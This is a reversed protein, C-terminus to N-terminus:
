GWNMGGTAAYPDDQPDRRVVSSRARSIWSWWTRQWDVKEGGKGPKAEWYAIFRMTESRWDVDPRVREARKVNVDDPAFGPPIRTGAPEGDRLAPGAVQKNVSPEIYPEPAITAGRPHLPQVGHGNQGPEVPHLPQVGHQAAIRQRLGPFQRELSTVAHDDLDGRVLTMDLSWVKPRHDARPIRAAAAAENGPRIVGAAELRDLCTRVTRESLDTYRMLTAVSPFADEGYPDAHNAIAVLVFRCSSSPKGNSDSPVPALNMAWSIAEVSM